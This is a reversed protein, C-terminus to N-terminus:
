VFMDGKKLTNAKLFDSVALRSKSEPQVELLALVGSATQIHVEHDLLNVIHGAVGTTNLDVVRTRHIKLRKGQFMIYTGPGMTFARVRDHITKAALNWSLLSEEKEIKAAYTVKSEDQETLAIEGRVYRILDEALLECGLIALRDYLQTATIADDLDVKREGIVAGADLKKVMKQLCVGTETDGAEISRQIPAAGRWLPLLSGHVNVAGHPFSDLFEQSLIQGFAVVVAVDAKWAKIQEFVEPEKRLNEPTLVPLQHETALVKVASPTLQMKRGAPRDPQTVVGVVHYNKDALLAKLHTAAFDPTGLFCVRVPSM